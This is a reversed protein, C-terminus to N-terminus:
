PVSPPAADPPPADPRYYGGIRRDNQVRGAAMLPNLGRRYLAKRDIRLRRQLRSAKLACGNLLDLIRKQFPTPDFATENPADADCGNQNSVEETATAPQDAEPEAHPASLELTPAGNCGNLTEHERSIEQLLSPDSGELYWVVPGGKGLRGNRVGALRNAPNLQERPFGANRWAKKLDTLRLSGKRLRDTLFKARDEPTAAKNKKWVKLREGDQKAYLYLAEHRNKRVYHKDRIWDLKRGLARHKHDRYYALEQECLGSLASFENLPLYTKGNKEPPVQAALIKRAIEALNDPNNRWEGEDDPTAWKSKVKWADLARGIWRCYKRWLPLDGKYFATPYQRMAERDSLGLRQTTGSHPEGRRLKLVKKLQKPSFVCYHTIHGHPSIRHEHWRDLIQGNLEPIGKGDQDKPKSWRNVVDQGLGRAKCEAYTWGPGHDPDVIRGADIIERIERLQTERFVWVERWGGEEFVPIKHADLKQKGLLPTSEQSWRVLSTFSLHLNDRTWTRTRWKQGQPDKLSDHVAFKAFQGREGRAERGLAKELDTPCYVSVNDEIRYRIPRGLTLCGITSWTELADDPIDFQETAEELILWDSM